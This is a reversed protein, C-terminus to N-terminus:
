GGSVPPLVAVEDGPSLPAGPSTPSGNLWVACTKMLPALKGAVEPGLLQLLDGVTPGGGPERGGPLEVELRSAGVAERAGAFFLVTVTSQAM